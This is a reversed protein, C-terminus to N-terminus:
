LIYRWDECTETIANSIHKVKKRCTRTDLVYYKCYLCVVKPGVDKPNPNLLYGKEEEV